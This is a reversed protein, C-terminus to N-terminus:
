LLSSVTLQEESKHWIYLFSGLGVCDKLVDGVQREITFRQLIKDEPAMKSDYEGLRRDILKNSKNKQKYEKM